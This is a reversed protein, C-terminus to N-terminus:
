STMEVGDVTMVGESTMAVYEVGRCVLQEAFRPLYDQAVSPHARIFAAEDINVTVTINLIV